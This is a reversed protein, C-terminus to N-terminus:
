PTALSNWIFFIMSAAAMLSGLILIATGLRRQLKLLALARQEIETQLNPNNPFADRAFQRSDTEDEANM